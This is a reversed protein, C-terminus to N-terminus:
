RAHAPRPRSRGPPRAAARIAGVVAAVTQEFTNGDTVVHRADPAARLPAVTRTRDIGDRRRLDALLREAAASDPAIGRELARRRAREEVSADLFLKVDAAPLVVTGIDRGAVVIGGDAALDRQVPLFAARVEPNRALDSVHRDVRATQVVATRDTGDVIVRAHRGDADVALRLEPVLAVLAPGDDLPVDRHLALWTLARYLLGTDIFRYGLEKAAAAGVSSKGSSAPGDLAVVLTRGSLSESGASRAAAPTGSHDPAGAGLMRVEVATLPRVNGSPLDELRVPGFRVRVLRAIPVGLSGFMRRLQRKWGGRLTARYWVLPAPRPDLLRAVRATEPPTALRLHFLEAMGEELEIGASLAREEAPELRRDLGIAYEREVGYRPHLVRDAWPGDNTLLVLGDSDRDLRGVPYLRGAGPRIAAPVLDVVTRGAHRDRVTSTVGAPKNVVLHVITARDAPRIPRGDVEIRASTPDASLGITAIEGDVTVRGAVILAESGRRSAVGAAALIKQLRDTSM